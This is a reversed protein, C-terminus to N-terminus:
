RVRALIIHCIVFVNSFPDQLCIIMSKNKNVLDWKTVVFFTVIYCVKQLKHKCILGDLDVTFISFADYIVRDTILLLYLEDFQSVSGNNGKREEVM